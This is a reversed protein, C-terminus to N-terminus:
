YNRKTCISRSVNAVERIGDEISQAFKFGTALLKDSSVIYNRRDKDVGNGEIVEDMEVEVVDCVKHALELKSMNAAPNGLNFVGKHQQNKAMFLFARAVDQVGVFNRKFHGEFLELKPGESVLRRTFDNVLLDMRMRPSSGFVTALRFAVSNGHSVVDREADCKTVGYVSIPKLPDEETCESTGDTEGYGSNSNPYLLRQDAHLSKTLREIALHNVNRAADPFQDCLPAGVLAALPIVVDARQALKDSEPDTVDAEYFEFSPHHWYPLLGEGGWMLKDIGRVIHGDDLFHRIMTSGLYGAAGTIVVKM